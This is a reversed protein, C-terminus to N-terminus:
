QCKKPSLNVVLLLIRWYCGRFKLCDSQGVSLEWVRAEKRRSDDKVMTWAVLLKERLVVANRTCLAEGDEEDDRECGFHRIYHEWGLIVDEVGELSCDFVEELGM